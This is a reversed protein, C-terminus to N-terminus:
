LIEKKKKNFIKLYNFYAMYKYLKNIKQFAHISKKVLTSMYIDKLM